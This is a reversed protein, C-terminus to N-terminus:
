QILGLKKAILEIKQAATLSNWTSNDPYLVANIKDVDAQTMDDPLELYDGSYGIFRPIEGLATIVKSNGIEM